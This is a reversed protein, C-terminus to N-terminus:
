AAYKRAIKENLSIGFGPRNSLNTRGQRLEEPPDTLEARWPAEGFSHELILFNPLTACVQAAAANGVPSAPGHPSVMLGAGESLAAIKKMELLGGCYKIDPMTIDVAGAAIYRYFNKVGFISEGGATPIQTRRNFEALDELRPTAEEIWFLKLPELVEALKLSRELNLTSHVDVLVDRNPGAVERVAAICDVAQRAHQDIAADDGRPMGDFPALKVADFGADFAARAMQAFGAPSRPEASRNINAYNRISTRLAGGFLRHAPVGLIKGQIDWLCQELAGFAVAAPRGAAEIEAFADLRFRGVDWVSYGKLRAFFRHLLVLTKEDAGGHSADGLGTIGASTRMRVIVWNGRRNVKVQFVELDAPAVPAPQPRIPLALTAMGAWRAFERRTPM